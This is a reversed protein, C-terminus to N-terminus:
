LYSLIEEFINNSLKSAPIEMYKGNEPESNPTRANAMPPLGKSRIIKRLASEFKTSYESM